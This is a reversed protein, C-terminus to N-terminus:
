RLRVADSDAVRGPRPARAAWVIPQPKLPRPPAGFQSLTLDFARGAEDSLAAERAQRVAMARAEPDPFRGDDVLHDLIHVLAEKGRTNTSGYGKVLRGCLALQHGLSWCGRLGRETRDLWREIMAQEQTFRSGRRRLGKMRALVRLLLLNHVRHSGLALAFGFPPRGAAVRRQEWRLLRAALGAPLLAAIEGIGPKLYDYLRLLEGEGVGVERRVRAFRSPRSKLDAVRVVDDFAMWLALSRAAERTAVSGNACGPDVAREADRIRELRQLYLRGYAEDQYERMRALGATIIEHAAPPFRAAVEPAVQPAASPAPGAAAHTRLGRVEDLALAFGRVSADVGRAGRRITAEYHERAFPLVGSAAIAGLMVASIATGAERARAAMDFVHAERSFARVVELLRASPARGDALQMKEATTLTRHISSLVCTRERTAFGAGIQRATELLESSVLLDLAGPVPYLSFLPRADGPGSKSAAIEVYYTTAGTRQAVGPISTSQAAHGAAVATDVLWRALVGGGEGGLACVLVSIWQASGAAMM